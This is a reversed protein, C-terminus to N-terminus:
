PCCFFGIHNCAMLWCLHGRIWRMFVM